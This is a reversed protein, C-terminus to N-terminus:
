QFQIVVDHIISSIMFLQHTIPKNYRARRFVTSGAHARASVYQQQQIISVNHQKGVNGSCL